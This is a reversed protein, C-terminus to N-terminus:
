HVGLEDETFVKSRIASHPCVFPCKGCEM